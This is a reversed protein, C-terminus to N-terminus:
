YPLYDGGNKVISSVERGIVPIPSDVQFLVSKMRQKLESMFMPLAAQIRYNGILEHLPSEALNSIGVGAKAKRLDTSEFRRAAPM